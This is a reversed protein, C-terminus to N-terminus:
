PYCFLEEGDHDMLRPLLPQQAVVVEGDIARQDFRPCTLLTELRLFAGLRQLQRWRLIGATIRRDVKTFLLTPVFRVLRQCIRKRSQELLATAGFRPKTIHSM